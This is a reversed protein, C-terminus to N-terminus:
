AATVLDKLLAGPTLKVGDGAAAAAATAVVCAVPRMKGNM